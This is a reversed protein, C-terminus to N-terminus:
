DTTYGEGEDHRSKALGKRPRPDSHDSALHDRGRRPTQTPDDEVGLLKEVGIDHQRGQCDDADHSENELSQDELGQLPARHTAPAHHLRNLALEEPSVTFLM